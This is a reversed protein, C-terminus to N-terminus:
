YPGCLGTWYKGEVVVVVLDAISVVAVGVCSVMDLGVTVTMEALPSDVLSVMVTGLTKLTLEVASKAIRPQLLNQRYAGAAVCVCVISAPFRRRTQCSCLSAADCPVDNPLHQREYLRGDARVNDVRDVSAHVLVTALWVGHLIHRVGCL